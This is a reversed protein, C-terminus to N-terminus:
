KAETWQVKIEEQKQKPNLFLNFQAKNKAVFEQHNKAKVHGFGKIMMPLEALAIAEEYNSSTLSSCVDLITKEYSNILEREDKREQSYGFVDFMSGRLFKMKTMLPFLKLVWSSFEKKVLYGTVPDKKSFLPPAMNVKIQYKGTFQDDLSRKFDASSYLRAVEYEDKYAMIKYFSQAVAKTLLNNNGSLDKESKEVKEVKEVLSLFRSSYATNQYDILSKQQRDLMEDLSEEKNSNESPTFCEMKEPDHAMLRGMMFAQINFDIAVGNLKIAEIISTETLPLQGSQYAFGVVFLNTAITNGFLSLALETANFFHSNESGVRKNIEEIVPDSSLKIDPQKLFAATPKIDANGVFTTRKMALTNLVDKTMAGVMDFGLVLDADGAGIRQSHIQEGSHAIRLHSSVAGGKQSLGTMDFISCKKGELHAAMGLVAGVTIVGTGGIGTIVINFNGNSIKRSSVDPLNSTDLDNNSSKAKKKLSAGYVSVFSPCFGKVCSYDKNCSSQDILRKRGNVTGKPEISVCNSQQSCDGCGECVQDYIFLRKVPDNMLGRKRKRRKEAACTQEYIIVTCGSVERLELQVANLNDRHYVDIGSPIHKSNIYNEPSDTVIVCKEAGEQIVQHAISGVSINGDIPQGGTMAVADNFLIKYTINVKAAIASRIALHGSHFYTGDGMNQFIHKVDVYPSMGAWQVGEAGMHTFPLMDTRHIYAMGHCGIGVGAVSGEPLKTSTNHPCGSCFVPSRVLQQCPLQLSKNLKELLQDKKKNLEECIVGLNTLRNVIAIALKIPELQIDRPLLANGFEDTKGVIRPRNDMDYLITAAQLEIFAKKEEIFFLEEIGISFDKLGSPEVPWICGVKFISLGIEKARIETIDLLRLSEMTDSYSKGATVIGLRTNNHHFIKQNINNAKVFEHVLPIKHLYVRSEDSQPNFGKGSFHIGEAPLNKKDPEILNPVSIDIISTQEVTENITKLGVWLGTYRSMAIGLLGFEIIEEVNSPYLSPLSNAALAQESQHSVTSSKGPHDDGYVVLVGGHISTGSYNAHKFVDGSRDVGPGKGYWIGVVGDVSKEIFLDLQQTGWIATAALDENVGPQFTINNDELHEKAQWLASDYNGLPSGRYGSIFSATNLDNQSDIQHQVIPIRVLAQAGNLLVKGTNLTYKDDLNVSIKTM